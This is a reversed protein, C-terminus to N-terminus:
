SEWSPVGELSFQFAKLLELNLHYQAEMERMLESSDKGELLSPVVLPHPETSVGAAHLLRDKFVHVPDGERFRATQLSQQEHILRRLVLTSLQTSEEPALFRRDVSVHSPLILSPTTSPSLAWGAEDGSLTLLVRRVLGRQSEVAPDGRFSPSGVFHGPRSLILDDVTANPVSLLYEAAVETSKKQGSDLVM